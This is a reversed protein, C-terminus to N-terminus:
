QFNELGESAAKKLKKNRTSEEKLGRRLLHFAPEIASGALTRGPPWVRSM